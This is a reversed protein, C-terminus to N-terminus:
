DSARDMTRAKWAEHPATARFLATNKDDENDNRRRTAWYSVGAQEGEGLPTPLSVSAENKLRRSGRSSVCCCSSKVCRLVTTRHHFTLLSPVCPRAEPCSETIHEYRTVYSGHWCAPQFRRGRRRLRLAFFTRMAARQLLKKKESSGAM